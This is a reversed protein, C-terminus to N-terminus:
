RLSPREDPEKNKYLWGTNPRGRDPDKAKVLRYGHKDSDRVPYPSVKQIVIAETGASLSSRFVDGDWPDEIGRGLTFWFTYYLAPLAVIIALARVAV